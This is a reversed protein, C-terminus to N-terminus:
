TSISPLYELTNEQQSEGAINGIYNSNLNIINMYNENDNLSSQRSFDLTGLKLTIGDDMSNKSRGLVSDKSLNRNPTVDMGKLVRSQKSSKSITDNYESFTPFADECTNQTYQTMNANNNTQLTDLTDRRALIYSSKNIRTNQTVNVLTELNDLYVVSKSLNPSLTTTNKSFQYESKPIQELNEVLDQVM